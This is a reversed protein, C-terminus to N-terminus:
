CFQYLNLALQAEPPVKIRLPNPGLSAQSSRQLAVRSPLLNEETKNDGMGQNTNADYYVRVWAVLVFWPM